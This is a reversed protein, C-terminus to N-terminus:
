RSGEMSFHHSFEIHDAANNAKALEYMLRCDVVAGVSGDDNYGVIPGDGVAFMIVGTPSDAVHIAGGPELSHTWVGGRDDEGYGFEGELIFAEANGIHHHPPAETNPDVKLLMSFGGSHERVTLLKFYTGPMVWETWPITAPDFFTPKHPVNIQIPNNGSFKSPDSM